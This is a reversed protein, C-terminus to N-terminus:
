KEDEPGPDVGAISRFLDVLSKDASYERRELFDGESKGLLESARLRHDAKTRPVKGRAMESWFAQREERDMILKNVKKAERKEIAKRIELNKLLAQGISYATKPSYGADLAAQTINGNYAAIFKKQRPTFGRKKKM